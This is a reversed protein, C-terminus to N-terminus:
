CGRDTISLVLGEEAMKKWFGMAGPHVDIPRLSKGFHTKIWQLATRAIGRSRYGGLVELYVINLENPLFSRRLVAFGGDFEVYHSCDTVTASFNM